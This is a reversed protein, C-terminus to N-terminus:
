WDASRYFVLAVYKQRKLLDTLAIQKGTADALSFEPVADGVKLQRNTSEDARLATTLLVLGITMLQRKM